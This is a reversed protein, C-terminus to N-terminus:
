NLDNYFVGKEQLVDFIYKVIKISGSPSLHGNDVLLLDVNVTDLIVNCGKENCLYELISIYTLLSSNHYKISMLYDTDIIKNNLGHKVFNNSSKYCKRVYIVPLSINYQPVPGILIIEKVGKEKLVQAIEKWNVEEHHNAQAIIVITPKIREIEKLAFENSYKCNNDIKGSKPNTTLSPPCGSTAVQYFNIPLKRANIENRIGYSLAQAHSDGWLFISNSSVVQSNTCEPAIQERRKQLDNDYFDCKLMYAESLGKKHLKEYYELFEKKKSINITRIKSEIGNEKYIYIAPSVFSFLLVLYISLKIKSDQNRKINLFYKEVSVTSLWGFVVSLSIALVIFEISNLWLNMNFWIFIPWHWLYISYSTTGLFHLVKSKSLIGEQYSASIFLYAGLVPFLAWYSPWFLKNNLFVLSTIIVLFGLLQFKYKNDPKFNIPFFYIIAGALLEWARTPLLYFSATPYKGTLFISLLLSLLFLSLLIYRLFKTHFFKLFLVVLIPYLIYFQWEVALSWTHLLYLEEASADFYGSQKFYLINSAFAMASITEKALQKYELPFLVFWGFIMVFLLLAVLAPIIRYARDLYFSFISLNDNIYKEYIIKTMLFGSIVFFIDVGIFGANFFPIKFHYLVVSLIAIARLVNIDHRFNM